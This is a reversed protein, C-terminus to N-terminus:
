YPNHITKMRIRRVYGQLGGSSAEWAKFDNGYALAPNNQRLSILTKYHNFLSDNDAKKFLTTQSWIMLGMVQYGLRKKLLTSGM